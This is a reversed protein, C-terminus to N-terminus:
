KHHKSFNLVIGTFDLLDDLHKEAVATMVAPNISQYQHVLTNRFGAMNKLNRALENCIVGKDALMSFGERSEKPLGFKNVDEVM